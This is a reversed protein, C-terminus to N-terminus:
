LSLFFDDKKNELFNFKEFTSIIILKPDNAGVFLNLTLDRTEQDSTLLFLNQFSRKLWQWLKPVKSRCFATFFLDVLLDISIVCNLLM